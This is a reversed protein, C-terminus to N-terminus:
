LRNAYVVIVEETEPVATAAPVAVEAREAAITTDVLSPRARGFAGMVGDALETVADRESMKFAVDRATGACATSTAMTLSLALLCAAGFFRATCFM